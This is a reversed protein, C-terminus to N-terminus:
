GPVLSVLTGLHATESLQEVVGGEVGVGLCCPEGVLHNVPTSGIMQIDV